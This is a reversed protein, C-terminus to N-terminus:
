MTSLVLGKSSAEVSTCVVTARWPKPTSWPARCRPSAARWLRRTRPATGCRRPTCGPVPTSPARRPCAGSCPAARGGSPGWGLQLALVWALPIQWVRFCGFNLWTPTSPDGAGNFAQTLVLKYAFFLFGSSVIRLCTVAHAAIAADATFVEAIALRWTTRIETSPSCGSAIPRNAVGVSWRRM